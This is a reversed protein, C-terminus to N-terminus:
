LRDALDLGIQLWDQRHEEPPSWNKSWGLWQMCLHLQACLVDAMFREKAAEGAATPSFTEFYTSVLGRQQGTTWGGITLAALDIVGPGFAATEWDLVCVRLGAASQQIMVNSPFFEGHLLLPRLQLLRDFAHRYARELIAVQGQTAQGQLHLRARDLWTRYYARDCRILNMAGALRASESEHSSHFRALWRAVELWTGFEGLQYLELGPIKELFLWYRERTPDALSGYCRATGHAGSDLVKRYIQIERNPDQLFRPKVRRAEGLLAPSSLDKFVLHVAPGGALEVEVEEVVHSSSYQSPRRELRSIEVAMNFHDALTEQLVESLEADSVVPKPSSSNGM